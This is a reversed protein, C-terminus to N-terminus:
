YVRRYLSNVAGHTDRVRCRVFRSTRWLIFYPPFFLILLSIMQNWLFTIDLVSVSWFRLKDFLILKKHFSFRISLSMSVCLHHVCVCPLLCVGEHLRGMFLLCLERCRRPEM